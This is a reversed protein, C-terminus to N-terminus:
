PKAEFFKEKGRQEVTAYNRDVLQQLRMNVYARGHGVLKAIESSTAPKGNVYLAIFITRTSNRLNLAKEMIEVPLKIKARYIEANEADM